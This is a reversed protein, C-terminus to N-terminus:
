TNNFHDKVAMKTMYHVYVDPILSGQVMCDGVENYKAHNDDWM